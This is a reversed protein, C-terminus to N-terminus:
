RLCAVSESLARKAEESYEAGKAHNQAPTLPQLNSHHFCTRRQTEDSLDFANCPVVHDIQWDSGYNSWAMDGEFQTEIHRKLATTTCGVLGRTRPHADRGEKIAVLINKLTSRLLKTQRFSEDERKRKAEYEHMYEAHRKKNTPDNRYEALCKMCDNRLGDWHSTLANYEALPRWEKCTCCAKGITEGVTTHPTRKVSPGESANGFGLEARREKWPKAKPQDREATPAGGEGDEASKFRAEFGGTSSLGKKSLVKSLNGPQLGNATAAAAATPYDVWDDDSGGKKRVQVPKRGKTAKPHTKRYHENYKRVREKNAAKWSAAQDRSAPMAPKAQASEVREIKWEVLFFLRRTPRM